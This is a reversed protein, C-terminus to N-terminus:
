RRRSINRAAIYEASGSDAGILSDVEARLEPDGACSQDLFMERRAPSLDAAASFLQQARDWRERLM